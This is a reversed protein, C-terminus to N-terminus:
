SGRWTATPRTCLCLSRGMPHAIGRSVQVAEDADEAGQREHAPSRSAEGVRAQLVCVLQGRGREPRRAGPGAPAGPLRSGDRSAGIRPADPDDAPTCSGSVIRVRTRTHRRVDGRGRKAADKPAPGRGAM